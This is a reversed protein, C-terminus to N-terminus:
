KKRRPSITWNELKLGVVREFEATNNTVLTLGLATAHAAIFLDNAGILAGRRKLDARIEAYHLAADDAWEVSEVYLLFAALAAADQARRSSVEVGYLLEAKTIVSMCVDDVDMAQLRKLVLPHSRKMIYSCTDTDLM